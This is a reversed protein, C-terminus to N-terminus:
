LQRIKRGGGGGGGGRINIPANPESPGKRYLDEIDNDTHSSAVQVALPYLTILCCSSNGSKRRQKQQM